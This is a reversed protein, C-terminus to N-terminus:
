VATKSSFFDWDIKLQVESTSRGVEFSSRNNCVPYCGFKELFDSIFYNELEEISKRWFSKFIEFNLYTFSIQYDRAYNHVAVNGSGALHDKLRRGISYQKSDSKGIYILKSKKFPYPILLNDTYIFYLGIYGKLPNIYAATLEYARQFTIKKIEM